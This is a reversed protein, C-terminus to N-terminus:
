RKEEDSPLSKLLPGLDTLFKECAEIKGRVYLADFKTFAVYDGLQRDDFLENYLDGHKKEMLGTKIIEKNFTARVGSHKKFKRGEELLLASAAYFLAYYARNVAFGYSGAAFERRAAELSERAQDWWYCIVEAKTAKETV